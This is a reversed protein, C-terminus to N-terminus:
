EMDEILWAVMELRSAFLVHPEQKSLDVNLFDLMSNKLIQVEGRQLPWQPHHIDVCHPTGDDELLLCYRETLFYELSDPQAHFVEGTPRYNARFQAPEGRRDTRKSDYMIWDKSRNVRMKAQFYPLQFFTRAGFVALPSACDLSFFYVGFKDGHHVYTRVNLEPFQTIPVPLGRPGATMEFPVVGIWAQGDFLDLDLSAPVHERLLEADVPWHIFALDFWTQHMIWPNPNLPYPRHEVQAFAKTM